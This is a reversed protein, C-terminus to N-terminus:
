ISLIAAAAILGSYFTMLGVIAWFVLKDAFKMFNVCEDSARFKDMEECEKFEDYLYKDM